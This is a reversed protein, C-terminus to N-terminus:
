PSAIFGGPFLAPMADCEGGYSVLIRADGRFTAACLRHNGDVLSLDGGDPHCGLSPAGVEICIPMEDPNVVLWAIREVHYRRFDPDDARMRLTDFCRDDLRGEAIALGIEDLAIPVEVWARFPNCYELLDQVSISWLEGLDIDPDLVM